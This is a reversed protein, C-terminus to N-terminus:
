PKDLINRVLDSIRDSFFCIRIAGSTQIHLMTDTLDTTCQINIVQPMPFVRRYDTRYVVNVTPFDLKQMRILYSAGGKHIGAFVICNLLPMGCGSLIM